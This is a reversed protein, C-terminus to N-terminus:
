HTAAAQIIAMVDTLRVTQGNVLLVPQGNEVMVSEVVGSVAVARNTRQGQQDLATVRYSYSGPSLPSGSATRGDWSVGQAGAALSGTRIIKVVQGGANLIEVYVDAADGTLTFPLTVSGKGDFVVQATNSQIQRGVFNAAQTLSSVGSLAQQAELVSRINQLQELSGFQATQAIFENQDLPSLPDQHRLQTVLLKLFDDKGLVSSGARPSTGQTKLAAVSVPSGIM